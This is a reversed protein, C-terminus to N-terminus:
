NSIERTDYWHRFKITYERAEIEHPVTLYAEYWSKASWRKKRRFEKLFDGIYKRLFRVIGEDRYQLVHVIEHALLQKSVVLLGSSNRRVFRPHVYIARGFTIGDVLMLGTLIRAGRKTYVRVDPFDGPGCLGTCEFFEMFLGRSRSSLRM